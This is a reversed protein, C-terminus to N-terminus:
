SDSKTTTEVGKSSLPKFHIAAHETLRLIFRCENRAAHVHSPDPPIGGALDLTDTSLGVDECAKILDNIKPNDSLKDKCKDLLVLLKDKHCISYYFTTFCNM